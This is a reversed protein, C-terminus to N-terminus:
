AAPRTRVRQAGAAIAQDVADLFAQRKVTGRLVRDFDRRAEVIQASTARYAVPLVLPGRADRLRDRAAQADALDAVVLDWGGQRLAQEFAEPSSVSTPQYGVRRLTEEVM